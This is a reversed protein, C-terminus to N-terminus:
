IANRQAVFAGQTDCQANHDRCDFQASIESDRDPGTWAGEHSPSSCYGYYIVAPSTPPGGGGGPPPRTEGGNDGDGEPTKTQEPEKGAM